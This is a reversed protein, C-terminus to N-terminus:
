FQSQSWSCVWFLPPAGLPLASFSQPAVFSCAKRSMPPNHLGLTWACGSSLESGWGPGLCEEDFPFSICGRGDPSEPPPTWCRFWIVESVWSVASTLCCVVHNANCSSVRFHVFCLSAESVSTCGPDSFAFSQTTPLRTSQGSKFPGGPRLLV